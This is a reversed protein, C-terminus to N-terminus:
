EKQEHTHEHRFEPWPNFVVPKEPVAMLYANNREDIENVKGDGDLVVLYAGPAELGPILVEAAKGGPPVRITRTAVRTRAAIGGLRLVGAGAPARSSGIWLNTCPKGDITVAVEATTK